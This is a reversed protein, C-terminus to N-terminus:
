VPLGHELPPSHASVHLSAPSVQLSAAPVGHVLSPLKQVSSVHSPAPAQACGFLVSAHSSLVNQLPVSTQAPPVHVCEPSGHAAPLSHASAQLSPRSLQKSAAFEGHVSSLLTHVSSWHLPEPAHV